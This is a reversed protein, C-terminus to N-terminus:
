RWLFLMCSRDAWADAVYKVIGSESYNNFCKGAGRLYFQDSEFRLHVRKNSVEILGM